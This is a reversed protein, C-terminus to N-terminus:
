IAQSGSINTLITYPKWKYITVTLKEGGADKGAMLERTPTPSTLDPIKEM